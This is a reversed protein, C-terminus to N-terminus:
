ITCDVLAGGAGEQLLAPEISLSQALQALLKPAIRRRNREILNLYSASIGVSIAVEAQRLGLVM